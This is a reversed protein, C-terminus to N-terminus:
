SSYVRITVPVTLINKMTTSVTFVILYDTYPVKTPGGSVRFQIFKGTNTRVESLNLDTTSIDPKGYVLEKAGLLSQCDILCVINDGTRKEIKPPLMGPKSATVQM